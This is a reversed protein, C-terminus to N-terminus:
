NWENDPKKRFNRIFIVISSVLPHKAGTYWIWQKWNLSELRKRIDEALERDNSYFALRLKLDNLSAEIKSKKEPSLNYKEYLYILLECSSISFRLIRKFDRSRTASEALICHTAFSRPMYHLKSIMTIEAWLQTDGMLFYDSQYLFHDAEVLQLYLSRNIMVTLTLIGVFKPDIIAHIDHKEPIEIKKFRIYDRITEQTESHYVDYDSYVLGCEPHSEMYETQLQLKDPDHWFDDGECFAIYKGRCAHMTRYGNKRMGVNEDATIVRIIEPYKRQYELVIEMTGDTSCDEGIVLEYPYETKQSLVCEIAKGIYPRHNYTIMNISVLPAKAFVSPDSIERFPIDDPNFIYKKKKDDM